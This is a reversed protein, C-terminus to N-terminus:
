FPSPPGAMDAPVPRRPTGRRALHPPAHRHTLARGLLFVCAACWLLPRVANWGLQARLGPELANYLVAALGPLLTFAAVLTVLPHVERRTAQM